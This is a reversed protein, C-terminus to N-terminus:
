TTTQASCRGAHVARVHEVFSAVPRPGTVPGETTGCRHCDYRAAPSDGFVVHLLGTIQQPRSTM